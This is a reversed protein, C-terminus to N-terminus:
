CKDLRKEVFIEEATVVQCKFLLMCLRIRKVGLSYNVGGRVWHQLHGTLKIADGASGSFGRM